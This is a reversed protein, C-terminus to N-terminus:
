ENRWDPPQTPPVYEREQSVRANWGAAAAPPPPADHLAYPRQPYAFNKEYLAKGADSFMFWFSYVAVATGFPFSMTEVVAAIIGATRAWQKRKLMAYGAIFSPLTFILSWAMIFALIIMVAGVPPGGEPISLFIAGFFFLVAFMMLASLSGYVLHCIGLTKNHEESTM